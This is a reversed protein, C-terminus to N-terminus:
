QQLNLEDFSLQGSEYLDFESTSLYYLQGQTEPRGKISYYELQKSRRYRSAVKEILGKEQCYIVVQWPATPLNFEGRSQPSAGVKVAVKKWHEGHGSETYLEYAIAHAFEHLLTDRVIVEPNLKIHQRSIVIQKLDFKCAGARKKAQDYSVSWEALFPYDLSLNAQIKAVLELM